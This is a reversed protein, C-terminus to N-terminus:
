KLSILQAVQAVQLFIQDLQVATERGAHSYTIYSVTHYVLILARTVCIELSLGLLEVFILVKKVEM